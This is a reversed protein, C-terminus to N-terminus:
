HINSMYQSIFLNNGVFTPMLVNMVIISGAIVVLQSPPASSVVCLVCMQTMREKMKSPPRTAKILGFVLHSM